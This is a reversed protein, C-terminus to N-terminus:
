VFNEFKQMHQARDDDETGSGPDGEEHQHCVTCPVGPEDAPGGDDNDLRVHDKRGRGDDNLRDRAVEQRPM